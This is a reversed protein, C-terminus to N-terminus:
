ESWARRLLDRFVSDLDVDRKQGAELDFKQAALRALESELWPHLYKLRPGESMEAGSKKLRLLEDVDACVEPHEHPMQSELIPAFNTPVIGRGSELWRVALLPRLVYLYKKLRVSEGRLYAEYNRRAMQKYHYACAIPSFCFPVAQSLTDHCGFRDLYVIPSGLWELLPPNSKYLLQLAKRIDWGNLDLEDTIPREIVDRKHELDISLYWDRPRVYIFRGDWDSDPSAFGWARSGSECAYLVRVDHQSEIRSIEAAIRAQIPAPVSFDTSM